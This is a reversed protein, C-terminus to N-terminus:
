ITKTGIKLENLSFAADPFFNGLLARSNQVVSAYESIHSIPNGDVDGDMNIDDNDRHLLPKWAKQLSDSAVKDWVDKLLIITHKQLADFISLQSNETEYLM